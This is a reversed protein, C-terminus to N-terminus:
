HVGAPVADLVDRITRALKESTFPKQLFSVGPTLVGHHVIAEDTYGSMYMVATDILHQKLEQVMAPGSIDPLVVDSLILDINNRNQLAFEIAERPSQVAHVRYGQRALVTRAFERVLEEDEVLLVSETGRPAPGRTEQQPQDEVETTRPLYVKFSTGRGPESYVWIHGGSQTVIGHVTALGLGTGQGVPKTTFFPEFIRQQTVVDMGEGTDSVAVMTYAGAPVAPHNKTYTADLTVDSTEITLRGGKKMADRANLALNMLVQEIQGPDAKVRGRDSMATRLDITEGLLRQLMPAMGGVVGGLQIVRPALIQKRSFALLQHTLAAAREAAKTIENIDQLRRTEDEVDERLFEANGIIATLMNNFDHAVGGALRGIAEMKHAQRLQDELERRVTIDITVGAGRVFVGDADFEYHGTTTLTHETGDPWVTRYAVEVESRKERIAQEIAAGVAERDSKHVCAVFSEVQGGFTGPTLGHMAELTETWHVSGIRPDHEWVGAKSVELAFRMREEAVRQGHGALDLERQRAELATAMGNVEAALDSIGPAAGELQTRASFDGAAVRQMVGRLAGLPRLVLFHGSTLAAALIGVTLLGILWLHQRLLQDTGAFVAAAEIDLAVFLGADLDAKVPVVTYFRRVGDSGTSELLSGAAVSGAAWKTPFQTHRRGIWSASEPTRALITGKRDTLTLTAGAPLKTQSFTSNLQDLGIAIAVVSQVDGTASLIPQALVVDPRGNTVSIQYEGVSAKRTGLARTFWISNASSPRASGIAAPPIVGACVPSGDARVALINIYDPHARLVMPMLARCAIPDSERLGPFLTLTALLRQAEGFVRAQEDAALQALRLANDMAQAHERRRDSSQDWLLIVLAPVIVILSMAALRTALRASLRGMISKM